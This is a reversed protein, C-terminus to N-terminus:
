QKQDKPRKWHTVMARVYMISDKNVKPEWVDWEIGDFRCIGMRQRQCDLVEYKGPFTPVENLCSVWDACSTWEEFGRREEIREDGL